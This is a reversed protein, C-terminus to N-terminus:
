ITMRLTEMSKVNQSPVPRSQYPKETNVNHRKDSFFCKKLNKSISDLFRKQAIHSVLMNDSSVYLQTCKYICVRLFQEYCTVRRSFKNNTDFVFAKGSECSGSAITYNYYKSNKLLGFWKNWGKPIYSGDYENLYKGFFATTYGM